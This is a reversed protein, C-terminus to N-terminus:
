GRGKGLGDKGAPVFQEENFVGVRCSQFGAPVKDLDIQICSCSVRYDRIRLGGAPVMDVEKESVGGVGIFAVRSTSEPWLPM